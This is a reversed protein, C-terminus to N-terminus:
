IKLASKRRNIWVFGGLGLAGLGFLIGASLEPLPIAYQHPYSLTFQNIPPDNANNTGTVTCVDQITYGYEMDRIIFTFTVQYTDGANITVPNGGPLLEGSLEPNPLGGKHYVADTISTITITATDNNNKVSITSTLTGDENNVTVKDIAAGNEAALIPVGLVIVLAAILSVISLILLLRKNM